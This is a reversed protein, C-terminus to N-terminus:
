YDASDRERISMTLSFRDDRLLRSDFDRISDISNIDISLLSLPDVTLFQTENKAIFNELDLYRWNMMTVNTENLDMITYGPNNRFIPSVSPTIVLVTRPDVTSGPEMVPARIDAYHTHAGVLFLIKDHHTSLIQNFAVLADRHWFSNM